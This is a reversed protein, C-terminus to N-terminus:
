EEFDDYDDAWCDEDCRECDCEVEGHNHCVCLDGGCYCFRFGSGGCDSLAWDNFLEEYTGQAGCWCEIVDDDVETKECM